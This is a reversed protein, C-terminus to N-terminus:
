ALAVGQGSDDSNSPGNNQKPTSRDQRKDDRDSPSSEPAKREEAPSKLNKDLKPKTLGKIDNKHDADEYEAQRKRDSYTAYGGAVVLPLLTVVALALILGSRSKRVTNVVQSEQKVERIQEQPNNPM